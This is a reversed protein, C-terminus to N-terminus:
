FPPDRDGPGRILNLTARNCMGNGFRNPKTLEEDLKIAGNLAGGNDVTIVDRCDVHAGIWHLM